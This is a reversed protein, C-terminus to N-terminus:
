GEQVDTIENGCAGCQYANPMDEPPLGTFDFEVPIGSNGCGDIRCTVTVIM